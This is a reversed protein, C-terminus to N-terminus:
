RWFIGRSVEREAEPIAELEPLLRYVDDDDQPRAEAFRMEKVALNLLTDSVDSPPLPLHQAIELQWAHVTTGHRVNLFTYHDVTRGISDIMDIRVARREEGLPPASLSIQQELKMHLSDIFEDLSAPAQEYRDRAYQETSFVAVTLYFAIARPSPKDRLSFFAKWARAVQGPYVVPGAVPTGPTADPTAQQASTLRPGGLLPLM